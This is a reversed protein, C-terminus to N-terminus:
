EDGQNTLQIVTVIQGAAISATGQNLVILSDATGLGALPHNEDHEISRVMPMGVHRTIAARIYDTNESSGSIPEELRADVTRYHLKTHGMLRRILPRVFIDFSLLAGVPNGPLVLVPTADPGVVGFGQAGGPQMAVRTFEVKGLSRLVEVVLDYDTANMGCALMILDARVLQDEIASRLGAEDSALPGVRFTMAGAATAASTLAVGNIDPRLDESTGPDALDSGVTIVVVRPKPHVFVRGLGAAAILAIHRPAITTGRGLLVHTGDTDNITVDQALVCGVSGLVGVELPELANVGALVTDLHESVSHM